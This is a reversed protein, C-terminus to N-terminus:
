KPASESTGCFVSQPNITRANVLIALNHGDDATAAVIGVAKEVGARRLTRATPRGNILNPIADIDKIESDIIVTPIITRKLCAIFRM